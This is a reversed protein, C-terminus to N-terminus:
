PKEGAYTPIITNESITSADMTAIKEEPVGDLILTRKVERAADANMIAVVIFDYDTSFIAQRPSIFYGPVTPRNQNQDVWLVVSCKKTKDLDQVLSHGIKGAGYVVIRAGSSIKPFPLLCDPFNQLLLDYNRAYYMLIHLITIDDCMEYIKESARKQELQKRLEQYWIIIPLFSKNDPSFVQSTISSTRRIYHYGGQQITMVSKAEMLCFTVCLFDEGFAVRDDILPQNRQILERRIAWMWLPGRIDNRSMLPIIENEIEDNEFLKTPVNFSIHISEKGDEEYDNTHGLLHVMDPYDPMIGERVLVEVRDKEIWDDGDVSLVYDGTAAAAGAKRASTVGGNRKHIVHVRKDKQAYDDCIEPCNDTSGDDVLIIELNRYSQAIISEICQNIYKEVNYIPVIISIKIAEDSM